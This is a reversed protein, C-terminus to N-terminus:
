GSDLTHPLHQPGERGEAEALGVSCGECQGGVLRCPELRVVRRCEEGTHEGVVGAHVGLPEDEVVRSAEADGDEAEVDVPRTRRVGDLM